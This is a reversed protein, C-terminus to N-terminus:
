RVRHHRIDEQSFSKEIVEQSSSPEAPRLVTRICAPRAFFSVRCPFNCGVRRIVGHFNGVINEVYKLLTEELDM